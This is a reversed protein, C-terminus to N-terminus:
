SSSLLWTALAVSIGIDWADGPVWTTWAPIGLGRALYFAALGLFASGILHNM